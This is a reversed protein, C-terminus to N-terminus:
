EASLNAQRYRQLLALADPRAGREAFQAADLGLDNKLYPDAGLKLLLAVTEFPGYQAAMMLPTTGNPSRANKNARVEILLSVIKPNPGACAYHLPTWGKRDPKAGKGLLLYVLDIYGKISAMMLATEGQPNSAETKLGPAQIIRAASKEAGERIAFVLAPTFHENITNPDFGRDLWAQVEDVDDVRLASFFRDLADAHAYGSWALATAGFLSSKALHRLSDRRNM